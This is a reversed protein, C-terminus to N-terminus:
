RGGGTRIDCIGLGGIALLGTLGKLSRGLLIKDITGVRVADDAILVHGRSIVELACESKGSGFEGRLLVGFGM